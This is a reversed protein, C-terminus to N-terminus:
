KLSINNLNIYCRALKSERENIWGSSRSCFNFKKTTKLAQFNATKLYAAMTSSASSSAPVPTCIIQVYRRIEKFVKGSHQRQQPHVRCQPADRRPIVISFRM